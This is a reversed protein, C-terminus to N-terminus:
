GGSLLSNAAPPVILMNVGSMLSTISLNLAIKLSHGGSAFKPAVANAITLVLVVMTIMGSILTLDQAQFIDLGPVTTFSDGTGRAEGVLTGAVDRLQQDFTVVIQFVFLLLGTMAVHMPVVLFSFSSGALHRTARLEAVNSAYSAAIEGVEEGNAGMEVGDVLMGTSRRLLENGTEAQFREWCIDPPLQSVLRTRLHSIHPELSGMSKLDIHNLASSITSRTASSIAGLSRIFTSVEVDISRVKNDDLRAYFGTPFLFIALAILAYGVGFVYGLAIALLLGMPVLTRFFFRARAREPTGGTSGDYTVQEYPATRLIIYVSGTTILFMTAGVMVIFNQGLAGLLTSVLAVVVILTVSVLMAAYADTWKKLNEVSREYESAYRGGEIRSEERIFIHESEGSAITSAYRLLLSKINSARAKEAVLQLARTYEIGLRQSLLHVQEFFVSTKLARQEGAKKLISERPLDAASLSAMYTLISLLDFSVVINDSSVKEIRKPSSTISSM